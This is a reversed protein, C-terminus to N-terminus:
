KPFIKTAIVNRENEPYIPIPESLNLFEALSMNSVQSKFVPIIELCGCWRLKKNFVYCFCQFFLEIFVWMDKM